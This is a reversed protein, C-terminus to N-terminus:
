GHKTRVKMLAEELDPPYLSQVSMWEDTQPHNFGVEVAHLWQRDLEFEEAARPNAGYFTDGLCPHNLAAMHVRIQHTRGTVLDIEVLAAGPMLELVDYHTLSPRGGEIVAMRWQKSPHRGIPADITGRSPEPHGEVLTHYIKKVERDRFAQKLKSYAIESKAVIMAGSTGVDLRQVIGNREPPGGKAVEVGQAKLSALVTPGTWGPGSHAAMGVPKDVVVLDDDEYLIDLKPTQRKIEAVEPLNVELFDGAAVLLSKTAMLENVQVKGESILTGCKNRSFGSLQAMAVDLRVGALGQPVTASWIKTEAM